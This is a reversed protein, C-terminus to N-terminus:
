SKRVESINGGEILDILYRGHPTHLTTKYWRAPLEESTPTNGQKDRYTTTGSPM